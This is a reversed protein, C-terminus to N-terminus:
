MCGAALRGPPVARVGTNLNQQPGCRATVDTRGPAYLRYGVSWCPSHHSPIIHSDQTSRIVPELAKLIIVELRMVNRDGVLPKARKAHVVEILTVWGCRHHQHHV